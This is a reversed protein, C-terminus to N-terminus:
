LQKVKANESKIEDFKPTDLIGISIAMALSQQVNKTGLKAKINKMYWYITEVSLGMRKASEDGTLGQYTWLLLTKEKESLIIEDILKSSRILDDLKHKIKAALYFGEALSADDHTDDKMYGNLVIMGYSVLKSKVPLMMGCTAPRGDDAYKKAMEVELMEEHHDNWFTPLSNNRSHRVLPDVAYIQGNIYNDVWQKSRNSVVIYDADKVHHPVHLFMLYHEYGLKETIGNLCKKLAATDSIQEIKASCQTITSESSM